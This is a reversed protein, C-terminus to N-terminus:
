ITKHAKFIEEQSVIKLPVIRQNGKSDRCKCKIEGVVMKAKLLLRGCDPCRIEKM